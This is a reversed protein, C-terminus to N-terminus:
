RRPKSDGSKKAPQRPFLVEILEKDISDLEKRIVTFPEREDVPLSLITQELRQMSQRIHIELNKFGGPKKEADRGSAKLAAHAAKVADRYETLFRLAEGYNEANVERRVQALQLEGQKVVTKANQVPDNSQAAPTLSIGAEVFQASGAACLLAALAAMQRVHKSRVM